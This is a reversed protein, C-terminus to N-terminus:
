LVTPLSNSKKRRDKHKLIYSLQAGGGIPMNQITQSHKTTLYYVPYYINFAVAFKEGFKRELSLGGNISLLGDNFALFKMEFNKYLNFNISARLMPIIVKSESDEITSDGISYYVNNAYGYFQVLSTYRYIGFGLAGDIRIKKEGGFEGNLTLFGINDFTEFSYKGQQYFDHFDRNEWTRKSFDVGGTLKWDTQCYLDNFAIGLLLTFIVRRM